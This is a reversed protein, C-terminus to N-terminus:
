KPLMETGLFYDLWIWFIGFIAIAQLAALDGDFWIRYKSLDTQFVLFVIAASIAIGLIASISWVTIRRAQM